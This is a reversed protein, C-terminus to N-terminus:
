AKRTVNAIMACFCFGCVAEIEVVSQSVLTVTDDSQESMTLLNNAIKRTNRLVRADDIADLKM